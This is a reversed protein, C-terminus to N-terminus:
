CCVKVQVRFLFNLYIIIVVFFILRFVEDYTDIDQIIEIMVRVQSVSKNEESQNCERKISM